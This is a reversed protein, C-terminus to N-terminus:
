INGRPGNEALFGTTTKSEEYCRQLARYVAKSIRYYLGGSRKTMSKPSTM